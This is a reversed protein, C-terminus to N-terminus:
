SAVQNWSGVVRGSVTPGVGLFFLLALLLFGKFFNAV